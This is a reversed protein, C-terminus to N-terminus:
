HRVIRMGDKELQQLLNTQLIKNILEKKSKTHLKLKLNKAYFEVTRASLDMNYATQSITYNQVMWFLCEAERKTLYVGPYKEGLYYTRLDRTEKIKATAKHKITFDNESEFLLTNSFDQTDNKYIVDNLVSNWFQM